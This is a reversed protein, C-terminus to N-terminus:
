LVRFNPPLELWTFVRPTNALRRQASSRLSIQNESTCRQPIQGARPTLVNRFAAAECMLWMVRSKVSFPKARTASTM